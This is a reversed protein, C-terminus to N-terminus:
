GKDERVADKPNRDRILGLFRPYRLKGEKTWETFGIKGILKELLNNM